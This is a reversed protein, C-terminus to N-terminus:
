HNYDTIMYSGMVFEEIVAALGYLISVQKGIIDCYMKFAIWLSWKDIM